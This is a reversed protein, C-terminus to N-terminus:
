SRGQYFAEVRRKAERWPGRVLPMPPLTELITPGYRKSLIRDDLLVIVGRDSRRRVLRGVGQKLRIAADPVMFEWFPNGGREEIAEVRAQTVPESPVRFPLKQVVLARLPDGPVDVGEWFSATGLLLAAGSETFKRLLESRDGEGQVYMPWRADAGRRRLAAAAGRLVAYSTFLAFLGGGTVEAVEVIVDAVGQASGGSSGGARSTPLGSPVVLCTQSQYDFPSEFIAESPPPGSDPRDGGSSAQRSGASGRDEMTRVRLQGAGDLGLRGKLYDFSRQATLTASTLVVTGAKGFLHEALLSGPEVPATAMVLQGGRGSRRLEIWRVTPQREDASDPLLARRLATEGRELRNSCGRLDLLRGELAATLEEETELREHLSKLERRMDAFAALTRELSERVGPERVPELEDKSGLRFAGPGGNAEAWPELLDFFERLAKRLANVTTRTRRQIRRAIREASEPNPADQLAALISALVGKGRRDLRSVARFLGARTAKTGLRATAADELHHAEDFIVRKYPPLVAAERFNGTAVRVALDSFFLAHNVVLLDASAADRRARQYFCEQFHPCRTRLCADTESRVEEWLDNTPRVSLDSLSGDGTHKLWEMLSAMEESRDDPLLSGVSEAALNARRISVYNGRGKVLAWRIPEGLLEEVLPIDKQVLQEQLNITNTSVVTRERNKAAWRAAPLLYAISKGTGTGAEALGTGEENFRDAVFRLMQRQGPRDEYHAYASLPGDPAVLAELEALDLPEVQKPEPPEVVVYMRDARNTVIATGVGEDHLRAAVNLDADSPELDGSPHNHIMVSGVPADRSVALVASRNGRAVARPSVVVRDETVEALFSVERGGARAIQDRIM